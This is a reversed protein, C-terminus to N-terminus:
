NSKKQKFISNHYYLSAVISLIVFVMFIHFSAIFVWDHTQVVFPHRINFLGLIWRIFLDITAHLLVVPFPLLFLYALLSQSVLFKWFSQNNNEKERIMEYAISPILLITIISVLVTIGINILHNM